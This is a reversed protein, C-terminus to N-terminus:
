DRFKVQLYHNCFHTYSSSKGKYEGTSYNEKEEEEVNNYIVGHGAILRYAYTAMPFCLRERRM